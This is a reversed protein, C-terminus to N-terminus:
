SYKNSIHVMICTDYWFPPHSKDRKSSRWLRDEQLCPLLYPFNFTFDKGIWIATTFDWTWLKSTFALSPWPERDCEAAMAISGEQWSASEVEVKIRPEGFHWSLMWYLCHSLVHPARTPILTMLCCLAATFSAISNKNRPICSDSWLIIDSVSPYLKVTEELIKM